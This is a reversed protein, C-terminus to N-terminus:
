SLKKNKSIVKLKIDPIQSLIIASFMLICGTIEKETLTEGLILFGGIVSFVSELSM